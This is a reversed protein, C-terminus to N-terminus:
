ILICKKFFKASLHRKLINIKAIMQKEQCESQINDVVFITKTKKYQIGFVFIKHINSEQPISLNGIYLSLRKIYDCTIIILRKIHDYELTGNSPSPLM